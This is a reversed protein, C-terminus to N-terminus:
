LQGPVCICILSTFTSPTRAQLTVPHREASGTKVVTVANSIKYLRPKHLRKEQLYVLRCPNSPSHHVLSHMCIRVKQKKRSAAAEEHEAEEELEDAGNGM